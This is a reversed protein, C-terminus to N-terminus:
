NSLNTNSYNISSKVRIICGGMAYNENVGVRLANKYYSLNNGYKIYITVGNKLLGECESTKLTGQPYVCQQDDISIPVITKTALADSSAFDIGCQYVNNKLQDDTLGRVDSYINIQQAASLTSIFEQASVAPGPDFVYTQVATPPKFLIAYAVYVLIIGLLIVLITKNDLMENVVYKFNKLKIKLKM